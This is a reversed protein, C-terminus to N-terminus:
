KVVDNLDNGPRFKIVKKAPITIKAGTAPNRGERAERMQVTFSGFGVLGVKDGKALSKGVVNIFADLAKRADVKTLGAEQAIADILESKNM